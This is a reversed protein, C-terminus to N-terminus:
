YNMKWGEEVMRGTAFQGATSTGAYKWYTQNSNLDTQYDYLAWDKGGRPYLMGTESILFQHVDRGLVNPGSKGNVDIRIEGVYSCLNGGLAKIESCKQTTKEQAPSYFRAYKIMTGDNVYIAYNNPDSVRSDKDDNIRYDCNGKQNVISM